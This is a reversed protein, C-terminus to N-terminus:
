NEIPGSKAAIGDYLEDFHLSVEQVLEARPPWHRGIQSWQAVTKIVEVEGLDNIKDRDLTGRRKFCLGGLQGTFNIHKTRQFFLIDPSGVAVTSEPYDLLFRP